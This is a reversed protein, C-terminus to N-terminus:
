RRASVQEGFAPDRVDNVARLGDESPVRVYGVAIEPRVRTFVLEYSRDEDPGYFALSQRIPHGELRLFRGEDVLHVWGDIKQYEVDTHSVNLVVGPAVEMRYDEFLEFDLRERGVEWSVADLGRENGALRGEVSGLREDTRLRVRALEQAMELRMTALEQELRAIQGRRVSDSAEIEEFRPTVEDLRRATELRVEAEVRSAEAVQARLADLTTQGTAELRSIRDGFGQFIESDAALDAVQGTFAAVRRDVEAVLTRSDPLSAAAAQGTRFQEFAWAGFGLFVVVCAAAAISLVGVRRRLFGIEQQQAKLQKGSWMAHEDFRSERKRMRNMEATIEGLTGEPGEAGANQKREDM